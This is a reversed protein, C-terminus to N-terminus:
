RIYLKINNRYGNTNMYWDTHTTGNSTAWDLFYNYGESIDNKELMYPMTGNVELAWPRNRIDKYYRGASPSSNDDATGWYDNSMKSSPPHNSLHIEKSRIQDNSGEDGTILYPNFASSPLNNISLAGGSPLVGNEIFKVIVLNTDPMVFPADAYVNVFHNLGPWPMIKYADDFVIVNAYTQGNETGNSANSLWSAGSARTGSVSSIKGPVVNDLQFGFGNHLGGGVCRTVFTYKVEVVQNSANTITNYKYDVVLDNFDFDGIYPWLDEFMLTSYGTTPFYNNFARNADNPFEDIADPAGDNDVDIIIQPDVTVIIYASSTLSALDSVTYQITTTGHFGTVPVFMVTGNNNNTFTGVSSPNPATAGVLVVSSAVLASSGAVDNSVVNINVPTNYLTVATDNYAVPSVNNITVTKTNTTTGCSNTVGYALIASGAAVGTVVGSSNITALSPTNSSWTGGATANALTITAGVYVSSAGTIAAVTPSNGVVISKTVATNGCSNSVTYSIIATGTAVGTVTGNSSVTAISTNNSSWTGGSTPDAFLTTNGVCVTLPGTIAGVSPVTSVTISSTVTTTGCSNTVAYSIVATGVTVGTVVGSSNVTAVSTNGSSWTGGATADSLTTTAGVCVTTTGTIAAVTPAPSPAANIVVSSTIPSVCAEANSVTFTYTGAPIGSVTTSTGTGTTTVAGPTRTITWTGNASLGSFAVSGTQVACTPQTITGLVPTTISAQFYLQPNDINRTVSTNNSNHIYWRVEYSNGPLMEYATFDSPATRTSTGSSINRSNFLNTLTSTSLNYISLSWYFAAPGVYAISTGSLRIKNNGSPVAITAKIYDNNTVSVSYSNSNVNAAGFCNNGNVAPNTFSIGSGGSMQTATVGNAYKPTGVTPLSVPYPTNLLLGLSANADGYWGFYMQETCWTQAKLKQGSLGLFLFVVLTLVVRSHRSYNLNTM